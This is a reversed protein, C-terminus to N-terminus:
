ATYTYTYREASYTYALEDTSRHRRSVARSRTGANQVM